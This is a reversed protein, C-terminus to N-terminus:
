RGEGGGRRRWRMAKEERGDQIAGWVHLGLVVVPTLSLTHLLRLDLAVGDLNERMTEADVVLTAFSERARSRFLRLYFEAESGKGVGALFRLVAEATEMAASHERPLTGCEGGSAHLVIVIDDDHPRTRVTQTGRDREGLLIKRLLPQAGIQTFGIAFMQREGVIGEVEDVSM